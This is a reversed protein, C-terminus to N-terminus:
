RGATATDRQHSHVGTSPLCLVDQQLEHAADGVDTHNRVSVRVRVEDHGQLCCIGRVYKDGSDSSGSGTNSSKDAGKMGAPPEPMNTKFRNVLSTDILESRGGSLRRREGPAGVVQSVMRLKAGASHLPLSVLWLYGLTCIWRVTHRRATNWSSGPAPGKPQSPVGSDTKKSDDGFPHPQSLSSRCPLLPETSAGSLLPAHAVCFGSYFGGKM